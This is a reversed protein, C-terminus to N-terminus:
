GRKGKKLEEALAKVKKEIKEYVTQYTASGDGFPDEIEWDLMETGDFRGELRRGSMNVIIQPAFIMMADDIGKSYHGEARIGNQQLTALTQPAVYGLPSIGASEVEMVDAAIHRAIAEAMQSRCSNGICIFLVRAQESGGGESGM